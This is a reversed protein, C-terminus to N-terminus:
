ADWEPGWVIAPHLGAAIALRDAQEISLGQARWRRVTRDDVGFVDALEPAKM